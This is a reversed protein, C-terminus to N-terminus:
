WWPLETDESFASWGRAAATDLSCLRVLLLLVLLPLMFPLAKRLVVGVGDGLPSSSSGPSVLFPLELRVGSFALLFFVKAGGPEAVFVLGLTSDLDTVGSFGDGNALSLLKSGCPVFWHLLPLKYVSHYQSLIHDIPDHLM